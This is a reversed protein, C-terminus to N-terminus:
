PQRRKGIHDILHESVISLKSNGSFNAPYVAQPGGIMNCQM